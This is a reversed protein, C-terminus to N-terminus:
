KRREFSERDPLVTIWSSGAFWNTVMSPKTEIKILISLSNGCKIKRPEVSRNTGVSLNVHSRHEDCYSSTLCVFLFDTLPSFRM